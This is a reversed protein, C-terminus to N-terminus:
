GTQSLAEARDENRMIAVLQNIDVPRWNWKDVGVNIQRGRVTWADHVHGHLLWSGQDRLRYQNYRDQGNHDGEYPMHSLMVNGDGVRRRAFAQISEFLGEGIWRRQHEYSNRHGPWVPDHNGAILHIHGNLRRIINLTDEEEGMGVDGLHWIHDKPRVTRNWNEILTEDHEEVTAFPRWGKGTAAMARHRFHTDSTFWLNPM